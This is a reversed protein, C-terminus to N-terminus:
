KSIPVLEIVKIKGSDLVETRELTGTFEGIIKTVEPTIEKVQWTGKYLGYDSPNVNYPFEIQRDVYNAIFIALSGDESKWIRAEACPINVSRLKEYLGWGFGDVKFTSIDKAPYLPELLQGYVLYKLTAVRLKGCQKFYAIKNSYEPKFLGMNMWGNQRGDIFAQGQAYRFYNDSKKYDCTSGFFITYGSYVIQMMPIEKESPQSWFLNGDVLDFFNEASGETTMVMKKGNKSTMKKVKQFLVRNGNVWYSGGGLPHHHSKDFCLEHYLGSIQDIYIGTVNFMKQINDVLSSIQDQWFLQNACMSLLRGAHDSYYHHRLGGAEDKVAHPEFKDFDPINMDASSGNIYPMVLIGHSNLEEVREKFEERAPLFHPYQNDFPTQHWRYWQLGIPVDLIKAADLLPKNMEHTTGNAGSWIWSDTVWLGLNLISEPVDIRQSLPGKQVWKQQLAWPRYRKAAELWGGQYVGFAVPYYDPYDSGQVGMDDPYHKIYIREGPEPVFNKHRRGYYIVPYREGTLEKIPEAVFDKARAEPDMSAFYVANKNKNFSMFQMPWGGGPYRCTIKQDWSKLLEGGRAFSPRAIDYEGSGPFGNIIPYLVSWLGWYDSNNEVFIRWRAVGDNEPLEIIVRVTVVNNEEWWRLNNWEMVTRKTGNPLQEIFAYNCPKYNNTITYIQRGVGFAVEWLLHKGDVNQIHNYNTEMDVMASLGMGEPEFEFRVHDNSLVLGKSPNVHVQSLVPILTFVFLSVFFLYIKKKM